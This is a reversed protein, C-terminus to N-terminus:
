GFIPVSGFIPVFQNGGVANMWEIVIPRNFATLWAIGIQVFAVSDMLSVLLRSKPTPVLAIAMLTMLIFTNGASGPPILGLVFAGVVAIFVLTSVLISGPRRVILAVVWASLVPAVLLLGNPSTFLPGLAAWREDMGVVLGRGVAGVLRGTFILNLTMIAGIAAVTPYVIVLVNASRAGRQHRRGLSLFPAAAAATLVYLLGSLDSLVALALFIGARFGSQTNGWAVFRVIDAIGLGFFALGAFAAFNETVTYGFLPNGALAILLLSALWPSFRRQVMIELMKQLFIGAILAGAIGLGLRGGPVIAAFLTSLPPYIEGIWSVDARDWSVTGVRDILQQNPTNVGVAGATTLFSVFIYPAAFVARLIWRAPRTRPFADLRDRERRRRPGVREIRPSTQLAM